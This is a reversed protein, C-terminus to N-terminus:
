RIPVPEISGDAFLVVLRRDDADLLARAERGLPVTRLVVRERLLVAHRGRSAGAELPTREGEQNSLIWLGGAALFADRVPYRFAGGPDGAVPGRRSPAAFDPVAIPRVAGDRGIRLVEPEGAVFWCPVTEADGSGCRFLNRILHTALDRDSNRIPGRSSVTSFPLLANGEFRLLLREGLRLRVAVFVAQEWFTAIGQCPVSLRRKEVLKGSEEAFRLVSRGRDGLVWTTGDGPLALGYPDLLVGADELRQRTATRTARDIRLITPPSVDLIRIERPGIWRGGYGGVPEPPGDALATASAAGVSLSLLRFARLARM